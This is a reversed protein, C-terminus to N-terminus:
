KKSQKRKPRNAKSKYSIYLLDYARKYEEQTKITYTM